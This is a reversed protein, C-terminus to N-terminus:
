RVTRPSQRRRQRAGLRISTTLPGHATIAVTATATFQAAAGVLGLAHAAIAATNTSANLRIATTMPGHATVAVTNTSANLKIGTTLSGTTTIAVTNTSAALAVAAEAKFAVTETLHFSRTATRAALRPTTIWRARKFGGGM